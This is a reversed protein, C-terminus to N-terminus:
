RGLLYNVIEERKAWVGNRDNEEREKILQELQYIAQDYKNLLKDQM